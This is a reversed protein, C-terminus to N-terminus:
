RYRDRWHSPESFKAGSLKAKQDVFYDHNFSLIELRDEYIVHLQNEYFRSRPFIRWCVPEGPLLIQEGDSPVVVIAKDCEIITGFLAVGGSVVQGLQVKLDIKGLQILRDEETYPNYRVASVYSESALYIKDKAGWSYGAKKFISDASILGKLHRAKIERDQMLNQPGVMQYDALFGDGVHSSGYVSFYLWNAAICNQPSTKTPENESPIGFESDLGKEYLGEGGAALALTNYSASLSLTPCDWVRERPGIANERAKKKKGWPAYYVGSRSTAYLINRYVTTDAHPFPFPSDQQDVTNRDNAKDNVFLSRKGLRSFKSRILNRVEADEFLLQMRIGYLYDSRLFGCNIALRLDDPIDLDAILKDWNIVRLSGELDFLM